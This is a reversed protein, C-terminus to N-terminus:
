LVKSKKGQNYKDINKFVEQMAKLYEIFGKSYDCHKLGVKERKNILHQCKAEYSDKAYVYM